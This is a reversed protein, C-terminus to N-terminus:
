RGRYEFGAAIHLVLDTIIATKGAGPAAHVEGLGGRPVLDRVIDSYDLYPELDRLLTFPLPKAGTREQYADDLTPDPGPEQEVEPQGHGLAAM